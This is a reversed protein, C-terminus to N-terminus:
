YLEELLRKLVAWMTLVNEHSVEESMRKEKAPHVINRYDRIYHGLHYSNKDLIMEQEAVFLLENLGMDVVPYSTAHKSKSIQSIDYKDISRERIKQMLLAEIISGCMITAMKDQGAVVAIACEKLDRLLIKRLGEDQITLIRQNIRINYGIEELADSSISDVIEFLERGMQRGIANQMRLVNNSYIEETPDLSLAKEFLALAEYYNEKHEYQMGLNNIASSNQLDQKIIEKYLLSARDHNIEGYAFACEFACGSGLIASDSIYDSIARVQTFLKNTHLADILEEFLLDVFRKTDFDEDKLCEVSYDSISVLEEEKADEFPLSYIDEGWDRYNKIFDCLVSFAEKHQKFHLRMYYLALAVHTNFERKLFRSLIAADSKKYRFLGYDESPNYLYLAYLAEAKLKRINDRSLMNVIAEFISAYEKELIFTMGFPRPRDFFDHISNSTPLRDFYSIAEEKKGQKIYTYILGLYHAYALDNDKDLAIVDLLVRESENYDPVDGFIYSYGQLFGLFTKEEDNLEKRKNLINLYTRIRGWQKTEVFHSIVSGLLLMDTPESADIQQIAREKDPSLRLIERLINPNKPFRSVGIQLYNLAINKDEEVRAFLSYANPHPYGSSLNLRLYRKAKQENAESYDYRTYIYGLLHNAYAIDKAEGKATLPLLADKADSYEKTEIKKIIEDFM